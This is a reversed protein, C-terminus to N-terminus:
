KNCWYGTSYKFSSVPKFYCQVGGWIFSSFVALLINTSLFGYLSIFIGEM